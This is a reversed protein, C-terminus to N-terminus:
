YKEMELSKRRCYDVGGRFKKECFAIGFAM